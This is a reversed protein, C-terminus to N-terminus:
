NPCKHKDLNRKEWSFVFVAMRLSLPKAMIHSSIMPLVSVRTKNTGAVPVVAPWRKVFAQPKRCEQKPGRRNPPLPM